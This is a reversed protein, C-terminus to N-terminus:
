EKKLETAPNTRAARLTQWFVSFLAVAAALVVAAAFVWGYGSIRYSYQELLKGSIWVALPVAVVAAIAM